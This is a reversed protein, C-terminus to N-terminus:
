FNFYIFPSYTSAVTEIVALVFLAISTISRVIEENRESKMRIRDLIVRYVPASLVCGVVLVFAGTGIMETFLRDTLGISNIGIMNGLYIAADGITDARFIVWALIVVVMTYIHSLGGGLKETFGTIKEIVLVWFYLLGWVLFTWNAGHWIGTLLWVVFINFVWRGISVRNGGLPIYVYDRFWTSLSIHWRRWFETVSKSVYPYNFNETFHFGLMRGMGIAMDSYGSFDFYIQLTYCIGGLWAAAISREDAVFITDAVYALYNSLMVKKALGYIFREMGETFDRKSAIRNDIEKEIQNYRVIPGAILQPFLSVYLALKYISKQVATKKYYVDFLYSMMQFTFFSIGIPLEIGLGIENHFILLGTQQAVFKLYKFVFLIVIHYTISITLIAKAKGQNKDISLGFLWTIISSVIMLFVFVPEGWAYFGFSALLLFGNKFGQSRFWPNYYGILVIPLFLFLFITSSFVM